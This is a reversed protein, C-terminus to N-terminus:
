ISFVEQAMSLNFIHCLPDMLGTACYELLHHPINDVGPAKGLPLSVLAKWVEQTTVPQLHFCTGTYTPQLPSDTSQPASCQVAVHLMSANQKTMILQM